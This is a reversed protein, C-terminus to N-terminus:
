IMNEMDKKVYGLEYITNKDCVPCVFTDLLNQLKNGCKFCNM